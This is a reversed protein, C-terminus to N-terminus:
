TSDLTDINIDLLRPNSSTKSELERPHASFHPWVTGAVHDAPRSKEGIYVRDLRIRLRGPLMKLHVEAESCQEAAKNCHEAM